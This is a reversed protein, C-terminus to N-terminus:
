GEVQVGECQKLGQSPNPPKAVDREEVPKEREEEITEIGTLSEPTKRRKLLLALM